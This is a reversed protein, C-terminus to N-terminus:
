ILKFEFRWLYTKDMTEADTDVKLKTLEDVVYTRLDEQLSNSEAIALTGDNNVSFKVFVIGETQKESAFTPYKIQESIAKQLTSQPKEANVNSFGFVFVTFLIVTSIKLIIKKM